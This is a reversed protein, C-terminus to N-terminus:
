DGYNRIKVNESQLERLADAAIWKASKTGLKQIQKAVDISRKRLFENRKGIQRLAWNIAKMVYKRDDNANEIMIPFFQEYFQNPLKKDVISLSAMLVFGARKEFESSSKVWKLSKELAYNSVGFFRMCYSDCMEWTDFSKMFKEMLESTLNKPNFILPVLLRADYVGSNFLQLALEDSKGIKKALIKLDVHSVGFCEKPNIGFRRKGEVGEPSGLSKLENIVQDVTM